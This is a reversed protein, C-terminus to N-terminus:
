VEGLDIREVTGVDELFKEDHSVLVTAGKFNKVAEAIVPLHRFNIHNTPEDLVVLAPEELLLKAFVVLGKQGESLTEVKKFVMDGQLFFRAATKRIKEEDATQSSEKLIELVTKDYDLSSFDQSYYGIRINNFVEAFQDPESVFRELFTTKGIGNPGGVLLTDGKRLDIEVSKEKLAGNKIVSITHFKAIGGPTGEQIPIEFSPIPKDERRVDVKSEEMAEAELRMKKGRARMQGGKNGFFNAKDKRAQIGKELQANERQEKAIQKSIERVVDNYNGTYQDVKQTLGDLYLVGDTFSNLFGADHSIVICTKQYSKLFAELHQIGEADLNNTPEDLLLLDPKQILAFALLLRAKQGGSFERLKRDKSSDLHVIELVEDIKPDINYVIESFADQFYESLTKELEEPEIVQKAIAVSPQRDLNVQGEKERLEGTLLKFITSKGAGNQGMLAIKQGRRVTFNAEDLIPKNHGFDFDVDDFRVLVNGSM